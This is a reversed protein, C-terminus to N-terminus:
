HQLRVQFREHCGACQQTTEGIIKLVEDSRRKGQAEDAIRAFGQHMPAGFNMWGAPLRAHLSMAAPDHSGMTHEPRLGDATRAVAPWDRQALAANIEGLSRLLKHMDGLLHDYEAANVTVVTRERLAGPRAAPMAGSAAGDHRHMGHQHMDHQHMPPMREGAPAQAQGASLLGAGLMLLVASRLRLSRPFITM